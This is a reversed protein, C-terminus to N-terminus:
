KFYEFNKSTESVIKNDKKYIWIADIGSKEDVFKKGDSINMLFLQYSIADCNIDMDCIATVGIIDKNAKKTKPNIMYSYVNGDIEYYKDYLTKTSVIKNKVNLSIEDMDVNPIDINIDYYNDDKTNDFIVKYGDFEIMYKDIQYFSLLKIVKATVYGKEIPSLNLNVKNNRINYDDYLQIQKIDTNISNLDSYKFAKNNKKYKEWLDNIEGTNINIINNSKEYWELGDKLINYLSPSITIKNDKSSNHNLFYIESESDNKDLIKFFDDYLKEVNYIARNAISEDDTYITFKINTDFADFTQSYEKVLKNSTNNLKENINIFDKNCIIAMLFTITGLILSLARFYMYNTEKKEEVRKTNLLEEYTEILKKGVNKVDKSIALSYGKETLDPLKGDLIQKIKIEFEDISRAKYVHINEEYEEFVPIDRIITPIRSTLAEIIPIGETEELTPFLYLDAGSLASKIVDQEVYGAFILNDLKTSVAKKIKRPSAWLPSYGFWIFKYEPLRKALEVFDLIGKREIYLGIGIIVKDNESFNYKKRFEKGAKEDRQFFDTDVGNSIAKIPRNLNYNQLLRKSYETPTIIVDGLSYCKCIWKKFLPAVLNSFHFSNRFDEETSHAHYVIKKGKKRMKKTYFYSKPGYFNIHLIDYDDKLNTTYEINNDELAKIQHKIAKGLGSKKITNYGETYLLVKM